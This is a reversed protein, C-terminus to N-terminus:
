GLLGWFGYGLSEEYRPQPEALAGKEAVLTVTRCATLPIAMVVAAIARKM